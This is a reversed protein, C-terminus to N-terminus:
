KKYDKYTKGNADEAKPDAGAKLLADMVATNGAEAAYM